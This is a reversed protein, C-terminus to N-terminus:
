SLKSEFEPLHIYMQPLLMCTMHQLNCDCVFIKFYHIDNLCWLLPYFPPVRDMLLSLDRNMLFFYFCFFHYIELGNWWMIPRKLVALRIDCVNVRGWEWPNAIFGVNETDGYLFITCWVQKLCMLFWILYFLISKPKFHYNKKKKGLLVLLVIINIIKKMIVLM